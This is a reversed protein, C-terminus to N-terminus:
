EKPLLKRLAKVLHLAVVTRTDAGSEATVPPDFAISIDIEGANDRETITITAKDGKM